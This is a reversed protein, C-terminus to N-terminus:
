QKTKKSKKVVVFAAVGGIVACAAIIAIPLVLDREENDTKDGGCSGTDTVDSEAPAVTDDPEPESTDPIPSYPVKADVLLTRTANHESEIGNITQTVSIDHYGNELDITLYYANGKDAEIEAQYKEGDVYVFVKDANIDCRGSVEVSYIETKYDTRPYYLMPASPKVNVRADGYLRYSLQAKYLSSPNVPNYPAEIYGNGYMPSNEYNVTTPYNPTKITPTTFKPYRKNVYVQKQEPTIDYVGYAGVAFNQETQPKGVLIAPSLCNWFITNAGMWGHGTGNNGANIALFYGLRISGIQYINDFLTGNSWRHHPESGNNSDEAVSDLFVNPGCVRSNLAYDHRSDYSYCNKFLVFQCGSMYFSYRRGGEILSVPKLYSCGDITVNISRNGATVAAFGYYKSTIDRVWCDRCNSTSVATWPHNEDFEDGNYCSVFRINEVGCESIRDQRDEIKNVAASYYTSDLTLPLGVNLTITKDAEDIDTIWREYVVIFENAAWQTSGEGPIVDMGLTQVWLNNPTCTVSVTDGVKYASVSSLNLETKGAPVYTDAVTSKTGSVTNYAGGGKITLTTAQKQRADYIITGDEGQGEGRLVIGSANITITDTVTYKGAKLLIAGREELPLAAVEDIASQILATHNTRYNADITKVVKVDPIEEEGKRYGCYSYDVISAGNGNYDKYVLEGNGNVSVLNADIYEPQSFGKFELTEFGNALVEFGRDVDNAYYAKFEYLGVNHTSVDAYFRIGTACVTDFGFTFSSHIENKEFVKIDIWESAASPNPAKTYQFKVRTMKQSEYLVARMLNVDTEKEFSIILSVFGDACSTLTRWHSREDGDVARIAPTSSYQNNAVVKQEFALNGSMYFREGEAVGGVAFACLLMLVCLALAFMRKILSLSKNRMLIEM